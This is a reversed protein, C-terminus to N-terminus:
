DNQKGTWENLQREISDAVRHAYYVIAEYCTLHVWGDEFKQVMPSDGIDEMIYDRAGNLYEYDRNRPVFIPIIEDIFSALEAAKRDGSIIVTGKPLSEPVPVPREVRLLHEVARESLFTKDCIARTSIDPTKVDTRGLLYDASVGFYEALADLKDVVPLTQGDLYQAVSQRKIGIASAVAQQTAKNQEMLERLRRQFRSAVDMKYVGGIDKKGAKENNRTIQEQM